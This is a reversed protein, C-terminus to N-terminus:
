NKGAALESVVPATIHLKQCDKWELFIRVIAQSRNTYWKATIEDLEDALDSPISVGFKRNDDM